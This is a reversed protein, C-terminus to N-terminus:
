PDRGPNPLRDAPDAPLSQHLRVRGRSWPFHEAAPRPAQQPRPDLRHDPRRPPQDARGLETILSDDARLVTLDSRMRATEAIVRADKADSKSEGRFAGTMRDVVRGPVYVVHQRATALVGMLLAAASSTLDIAWRVEAATDHAHAILEEIASQDNGVKESFVVKGDSDMACAHHFTKGVDIGVWILPGTTM